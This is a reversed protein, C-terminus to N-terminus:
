PLEERKPAKARKGAGATVAAAACARTVNVLGPGFDQMVNPRPKFTFRREFQVWAM